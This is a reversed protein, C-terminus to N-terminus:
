ADSSAFCGSVEHDLLASELFKCNDDAARADISWTDMAQQIIFINIDLQM